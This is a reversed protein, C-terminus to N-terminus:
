TKDELHLYIFSLSASTADSLSQQLANHSMCLIHFAHLSSFGRYSFRALCWLSDWSSTTNRTRSPADALFTVRADQSVLAGPFSAITINSHHPKHFIPITFQNALYYYTQFPKDIDPSIDLSMFALLSSPPLINSHFEIQIAGPGAM